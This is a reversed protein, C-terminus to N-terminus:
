RRLRYFRFFGFDEVPLVDIDAFGAEQAYRRLTAPRMVTGTGVSPASSLGDPLCIFLSVAYMFRELDDGPATFEEAVAEDMVVVIGDPRVAERVASLVQVPRPMDHVCEFAFAADYGGDDDAALAGGDTLRFRVRDGFGASAANHRAMEVSPADVDVGVLEADPYAHALAVTSWGAGCGVDLVRAGPRRLVADVDAVGGLAGALARLFWPRNLDAQSERADPGLDDWSVGGGHRYADLLEPLRAGAAALMRPLPALYALSDEDTLAEAAGAPLTYRRGSPGDVSAHLLGLVAQQELWERTYREHTGTRRALEAPTAPGADHLSRYWGLRDGAYISLAELGGTFAAFVREAVADASPDEATTPLPATTTMTM